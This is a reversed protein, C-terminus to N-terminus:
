GPVRQPSADTHRIQIFYLISIITIIILVLRPSINTDHIAFVYRVCAGRARVCARMCASVTLRYPCDSVDGSVISCCNRGVTQSRRCVSM